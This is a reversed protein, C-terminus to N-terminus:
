YQTYKEILKEIEEPTIRKECQTCVYWGLLESFKWSHKCHPEEVFAESYVAAWVLDEQLSNM